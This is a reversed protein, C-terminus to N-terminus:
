HGCTAPVQELYRLRTETERRATAVRVKLNAIFERIVSHGGRYRRDEAHLLGHLLKKAWIRSGDLDAGYVTWWRFHWRGTTLTGLPREMPQLAEARVVSVLFPQCDIPCRRM